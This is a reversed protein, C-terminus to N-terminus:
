SFGLPGILAITSGGIAHSYKRINVRQVRLFNDDVGDAVNEAVVVAMDVRDM